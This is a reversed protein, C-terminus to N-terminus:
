ESYEGLALAGISALAMLFNEDFVQGHMINRCSKILVDYSIFLYPVAFLVFEVWKAPGITHKIVIAAAYLVASVLIRQLM